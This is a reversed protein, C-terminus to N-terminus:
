RFRTVNKVFRGSSTRCACVNGEEWVSGIKKWSTRWRAEKQYTLLKMERGGFLGHVSLRRVQNEGCSSQEKGVVERERGIDVIEAVPSNLEKGDATKPPSKLSEM